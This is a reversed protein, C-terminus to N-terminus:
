AASSGAGQLWISCSLLVLPTGMASVGRLSLRTTEGSLLMLPWGHGGCRENVRWGHALVLSFGVAVEPAAPAPTAAPASDLDAAAASATGTSADTTGPVEQSTAEHGENAEWAEGESNSDAVWPAAVSESVGESVWRKARLTEASVATAKARGRSPM